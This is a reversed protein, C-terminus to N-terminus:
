SIKLPPPSIAGGNQVEACSSASHHAEHGQRNVGPTLVGTVCQILPPIPGM